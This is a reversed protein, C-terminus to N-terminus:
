FPVGEGLGAAPGNLLHAQADWRWHGPERAAMVAGHGKESRELKPMTYSVITDERTCVTKGEDRM